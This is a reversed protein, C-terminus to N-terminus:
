AIGPRPLPAGGDAQLGGPRPLPAGGDAQLGGPRPLPAGGDAQLGGPRPLPAGGDATSNRRSAFAVACTSLGLVFLIKTLRM